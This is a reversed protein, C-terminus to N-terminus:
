FILHLFISFLFLDLQLVFFLYFCNQWFFWWFVSQCYLRLRKSLVYGVNSFMGLM